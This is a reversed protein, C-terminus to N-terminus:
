FKLVELIDSQLLLVKIQDRNENMAKISKDIMTEDNNNLKEIEEQDEENM